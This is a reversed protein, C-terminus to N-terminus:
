PGGGDSLISMLRLRARHLRSKTAALSLDLATAAEELSFGEVDVLLVVDREHENLSALGNQVLERSEVAREFSRAREESGFGAASLTPEGDASAELVVGRSRAQRRAANRAITFLWARPHEGRFTGAHRMVAVLTEQLVDEALTADGGLVSRAHRFLAPGHRRVLQEMASRDNAAVAAILRADDVEPQNPL